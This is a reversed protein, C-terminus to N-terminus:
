NVLEIINNGLVVSDVALIIVEGEGATARRLLYHCFELIEELGVERTVELEFVAELL